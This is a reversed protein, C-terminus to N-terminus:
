ELRPPSPKPEINIIPTSSFTLNLGLSVSAFHSPLVSMLFAGWTDVIGTSPSSCQIPVQPHPPTEGLHRNALRLSSKYTTHHNFTPWKYDLRRAVFGLVMAQQFHSQLLDSLWELGWNGWKYLLSLFNCVGHLEQLSQSFQCLALVTHCFPLAWSVPGRIVMERVMVRIFNLLAQINM